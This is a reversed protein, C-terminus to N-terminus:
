SNTFVESTCALAQVHKSLAAFGRVRVSASFLRHVVVGLATVEMSDLSVVATRWGSQQVHHSYVEAEHRAEVGDLVEEEEILAVEQVVEEVVRAVLQVLKRVLRTLRPQAWEQLQCNPSRRQLVVGVVLLHAQLQVRSEEALQVRHTRWIHILILVSIKLDIDIDEFWYWYRWILKKM